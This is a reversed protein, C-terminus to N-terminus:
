AETAKRLGLLGLHRIRAFIFTVTTAFALCRVGHAWLLVIQSNAQALGHFWYYIALLQM